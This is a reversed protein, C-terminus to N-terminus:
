GIREYRTDRGSTFNFDVLYQDCGDEPSPMPSLCASAAMYLTRIETDPPPWATARQWTDAIMAYYHVPHEQELGNRIGKVHYDLFRLYEYLLEFAPNTDTLGPGVHTM